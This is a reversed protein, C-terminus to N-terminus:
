FTSGPSSSFETKKALGMYSLTLSPTLEFTFNEPVTRSFIDKLSLTKLKPKIGIMEKPELGVSLAMKRLEKPKIFLSLVHMHKPTNKVCWEVLKIIVFYSIWNRNFTHFFFLGGPKLVRSIESIALGPEEVHELFDMCTVADFSQDPFPLAYANAELYTVRKTEDHAKAVVLSKQSLDVGTVQVQHLSLSNSLFGAGCGVDLLKLSSIDATHSKLRGIVWPTKIKSEQRLLAVPDDFATYWRDGLSDYITNDIKPNAKLFNWYFVQFGLMLTALVFQAIFFPRMPGEHAILYACYLVIPHLIFLVSHLWNEAGSSHEKHVFEDKTIFLCSFASLCFYATPSFQTSFELYSFCALVTLTDLPHGIREWRLLGRRQHFYFEDMVMFIGQLFFPLILPSNLM